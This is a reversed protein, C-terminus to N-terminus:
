TGIELIEGVEFHADPKRERGPTVLDAYPQLVERPCFFCEGPTAQDRRDRPISNTLGFGISPSPIMCIRSHFARSSTEVFLRFAYAHRPALARIRGALAPFTQKVPKWNRIGEALAQPTGLGSDPFVNHLDIWFGSPERTRDAELHRVLELIFPEFDGKKRFHYFYRDFIVLRSGFRFLGAMLDLITGPTAPVASAVGSAVLSRVAEALAELDRRADEQPADKPRRAVSSDLWAQDTWQRLDMDSWRDKPEPPHLVRGTAPFCTSMLLELVLPDRALSPLDLRLDAFLGAPASVTM